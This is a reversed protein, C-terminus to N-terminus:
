MKLVLIYNNIRLKSHPINSNLSKSQLGLGYPQLNMGGQTKAQFTKNLGFTPMYCMGTIM